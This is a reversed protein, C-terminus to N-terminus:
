AWRAWGDYSSWDAKRRAASPSIHFANARPPSAAAPRLGTAHKLQTAGRPVVRNPCVAHQGSQLGQLQDTAFIQAAASSSELDATDVSVGQAQSFSVLLSVGLSQSLSGALGHRRPWLAAAFQRPIEGTLRTGNNHGDVQM